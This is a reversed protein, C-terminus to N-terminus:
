LHARQEIKISLNIRPIKFTAFLAESPKAQIAIAQIAQPSISGLFNLCSAALCCCHIYNAIFPKAVNV